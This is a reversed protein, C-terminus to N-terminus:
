EKTIKYDIKQLINELIIQSWSEFNEIKNLKDFEVFHAKGDTFKPEFAKELVVPFIIGVHKQSKENIPTYIIMPEFKTEVVIGLEEFIERQMGQRFTDLLAGNTFDAEDLHGGIYFLSKNKEPSIQGTSKATKNIVLIEGNATIICGACVPQVVGQM